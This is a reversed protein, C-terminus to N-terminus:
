VRYAIAVDKSAMRRHLDLKGNDFVVGAEASRKGACYGGGIVHCQHSRGIIQGGPQREQLPLRNIHHQHVQAQGAAATHIQDLLYGQAPRIAIHDHHRDKAILGM